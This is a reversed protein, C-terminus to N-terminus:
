KEKPLSIQSLFILFAWLGLIGILWDWVQHEIYGLILVWCQFYILGQGIDIIPFVLFIISVRIGRR